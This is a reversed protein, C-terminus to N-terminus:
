RHGGWYRRRGRRHCFGPMLFRRENLSGTQYANIVEDTEGVIGPIVQIGAMVLMRQLPLSLAACILIDARADKLRQVREQLSQGALYVEHRDTEKGNVFQVILARTSFDFVPSIRSRFVPVALRM